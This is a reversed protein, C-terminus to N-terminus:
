WRGHEVSSQVYWGHFVRRNDHPQPCRRLDGHGPRKAEGVSRDHTRPPDPLGDDNVTGSLSAPAPLTLSQDAGANAEPALNVQQPTAIIWTATGGERSDTWFNGDDTKLVIGHASQPDAALENFLATIDVQRITDIDAAAISFTAAVPLGHRSGGPSIDFVRGCGRRPAAFM